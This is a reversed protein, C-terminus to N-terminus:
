FEFFEVEEDDPKCTTEDVERTNELDEAGEERKVSSSLEKLLLMTLKRSLMNRFSRRVLKAHIESRKEKNKSMPPRLPEKM